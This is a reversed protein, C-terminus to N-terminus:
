WCEEWLLPTYRLPNQQDIAEIIGCIKKDLMSQFSYSKNDGYASFYRRRQNMEETFADTLRKMVGRTMYIGKNEGQIFDSASIEGSNVLELVVKDVFPARLEEIVDSALAAHGRKIKHMYAFYPHLGHREIAGVINRQFLTYGYSLMANVPDKPPRTSRGSFSFEENEILHGLCQFYTKAANGEFGLVMNVSEASELFAASHNIGRMEQKSFVYIDGSSQLIAKSNILKALVIQKSWALCFQNNDTLDIQKKHREPDISDVASIRGFYHGDESFYGVPIGDKLCQRILQTSLQAAGFVNISDITSLPIGCEEQEKCGDSRKVTLRGQSVGAKIGEKTLYIHTM